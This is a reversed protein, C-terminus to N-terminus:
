SKIYLRLTEKAEELSMIEIQELSPQPYPKKANEHQGVTFLDLQESAPRSESNLVDLQSRELQELITKARALVPEPVGALSAVHIGYSRNAGGPVIRHLFTITDREERIAVRHNRCGKLRQSIKTLEHFHTAFLTKCKSEHYLYEAIAQALSLGDYTSTGRGIEDLIVLSRPTAFRLINAAESMEVMFTSQGLHLDDSAGVRTFVRDVIGITASSAPIYSGMQAMIVLLANQRLYTSKGSMNPGTLIIMKKRESISLDNAIFQSGVAREVVPHRGAVIEISNATSIQPKCWKHKYAGEAFGSLVDLISLDYAISRIEATLAAAADRQKCFLEYEKQKIKDEAGLIKAEYGKLETTFYRESNALTQKRIYQEPVAAINSRTVEIFYGFVQNFGVKLSRIGTLTREREQFDQIWEQGGCKIARLEDLESDYGPAIIGGERLSLPPDEAIAKSLELTLDSVIPFGLTLSCLYQSHTKECQRGIAPLAALSRRLALLDRANATGYSIRSCIREVDSITSLLSRLEVRAARAEILAHVASLRENIKTPELLPAVIWQRLRRAGMPTSTFDCAWLLSGQRQRGLLTETLELNRVSTSDIVMSDESRYNLPPSLAPARSGQTMQIYKLLLGCATIAGGLEDLDLAKLPASPFARKLAEKSSKLSPQSEWSTITFGLRQRLGDIKVYLSSGQALVVEAPSVQKISELLRGLDVNSLETSRFEGTSVDAYACGYTDGYESLACLYNHKKDDLLNPDLITGATITRVVERRVLGKAQRPDEVQEAICVRNGATVLLRLYNDLSFFPVGSMPIKIGNGSEKATLVIEADRAVTIADEGYAEYFDGVRMLLLCGSYQAKLGFYQTFLPTLINSDLSADTFKSVKDQDPLPM